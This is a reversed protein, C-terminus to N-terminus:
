QIEVLEKLHVALVGGRDVLTGTLRAPKGAWGAVQENVSVMRESLLIYFEGDKTLFGAPVNRSLCANSCGAHDMGTGHEVLYCHQDIVEGELTIERGQASVLLGVVLFLFGPRGCFKHTFGDEM